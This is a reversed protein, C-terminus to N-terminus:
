TGFRDFFVILINIGPPFALLSLSKFFIVDVLTSPSLASAVVVVVFVLMDRSLVGRAVPHVCKFCTRFTYREFFQIEGDVFWAGILYARLCILLSQRQPYFCGVSSILMAHASRGQGAM